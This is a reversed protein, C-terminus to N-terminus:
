GHLFSSHFHQKRGGPQSLRFPFFCAKDCFPQGDRAGRMVAAAGLLRPASCRWFASLACRACLGSRQDM